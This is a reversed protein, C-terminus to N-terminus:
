YKSQVNLYGQLRKRENELEKSRDARRLIEERDAERFDVSYLSALEEEIEEIRDEIEDHNM